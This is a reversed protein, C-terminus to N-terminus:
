NGSKQRCLVSSGDNFDFDTIYAISGKEANKYAYEYEHPKLSTLTKSLDKVIEKKKRFGQRVIKIKLQCKAQSKSNKENVSFNHLM